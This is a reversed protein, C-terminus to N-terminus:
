LNLNVNSINKITFRNIHTHINFFEKDDKNTDQPNCSM